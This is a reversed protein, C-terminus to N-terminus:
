YGGTIKSDKDWVRNRDILEIEVFDLMLDIRVPTGDPLSSWSGGGPSYNVNVRQLVSTAIRPIAPNDSEGRIFSIEFEAPFIYFEKSKKIEPLAYYRFSTIIERVVASETNNKPAFSYLFSFSRFGFGSFMVEKKPNVALRNAALLDKGSTADGGGMVSAKLKNVLGAAMEAGVKTAKDTIGGQGISNFFDGAQTLGSPIHDQDYNVATNVIHDNPMPLIIARDLSTLGRKVVWNEKDVAAQGFKTVQDSNALKSNVNGVGIGTGAQQSQAIVVPGTKIDGELTSGTEDTNIKFMVFQNPLGSDEDIAHNGMGLPFSLIKKGQLLNMNSNAYREEKYSEDAM